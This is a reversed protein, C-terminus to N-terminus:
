GALSIGQLGAYVAVLLLTFNRIESKLIVAFEVKSFYKKLMSSVMSILDTGPLNAESFL